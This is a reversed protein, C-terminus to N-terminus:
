ISKFQTNSVVELLPALRHALNAGMIAHGFESPHCLDCSLGAAMTLIDSGEILHLNPHNVEAKVDRLVQRFDSTRQRLPETEEEMDHHVPYITILVIPKHPHAEMLTQVMYRVRATFEEQTMPNQILNVGLELTIIDWDKRAAFHDALANEVHCSGGFGLNYVDIGLLRSAHYIYPMALHPASFGHTISSGYALWRLKPKEDSHPARVEGGGADISIFHIRGTGSMKLRMVEPAFAWKIGAKAPLSRVLEAPKLTITQQEGPCITVEEQIFDGQLVQVYEHHIDSYLTVRIEPADSVFRLECSSPCLGSDCAMQNLEQRVADPLRQLRLGPKGEIPQL